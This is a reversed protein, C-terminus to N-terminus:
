AAVETWTHDPHIVIARGTEWSAMRYPNGTFFPKDSPCEREYLTVDATIVPPAPAPTWCAVDSRLVPYEDGSPYHVLTWKAGVTAITVRRGITDLFADRVKPNAPDPTTSRPSVDGCTDTDRM